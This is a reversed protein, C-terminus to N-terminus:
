VSFMPVASHVSSLFLNQSPNQYSNCNLNIPLPVPKTCQPLHLYFAFFRVATTFFKGTRFFLHVCFYSKKSNLATNRCLSIGGPNPDAHFSAYGSGPPLFVLFHVPEHPSYLVPLIFTLIRKYYKYLCLQACNVQFTVEM